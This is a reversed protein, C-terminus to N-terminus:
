LAVRRRRVGVKEYSERDVQRAKEVALEILIRRKEPDRTQSKRYHGIDLKQRLLVQEIPSIDMFPRRRELAM